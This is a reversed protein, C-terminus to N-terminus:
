GAPSCAQKRRVEPFYAGPGPSSGTFNAVPMCLFVFLVREPAKKNPPADAVMSSGEASDSIQSDFYDDIEDLM